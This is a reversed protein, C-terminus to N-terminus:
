AFSTVLWVKGPALVGNPTQHRAFEATMDAVIRARTAPDVGRLLDSAGTATAIHQAAQAPSATRGGIPLLGHWAAVDPASFGADALIDRLYLLDAFAFPGPSRPDRSPLDLHKGIIAMSASMWPNEPAEAWVALDIRGGPRLMAHLNAFAARPDPFFMSGFRSSLRDFPAGEPMAAAADACAFAANAIGLTGARRGAEAILAPSIDLGTASGQPGVAEAIRITTAGGGCGVDIVREGPAFASREFLADGIDAIQAEFVDIHALWRAGVDAAWDNPGSPSQALADTM